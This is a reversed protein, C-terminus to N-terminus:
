ILEAIRGTPYGLITVIRDSDKDFYVFANGEIEFSGKWGIVFDVDTEEFYLDEPDGDRALRAALHDKPDLVWADGTETSFFVVPGVTVFRGDYEAARRQIYRIEDALLFDKADMRRKGLGRRISKRGVSQVRRPPPERDGGVEKKPLFKSSEGSLRGAYFTGNVSQSAPAEMQSEVCTRKIVHWFEVASGGGENTSDCKTSGTYESRVDWFGELGPKYNAIRYPAFQQDAVVKFGLVFFAPLGCDGREEFVVEIHRRHILIGAVDAGGFVGVYNHKVTIPDVFHLDADLVDVVLRDM